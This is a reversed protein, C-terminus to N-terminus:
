NLIHLSAYQTQNFNGEFVIEDILSKLKFFDEITMTIHITGYFSLKMCENLNKSKTDLYDWVKFVQCKKIELEISNFYIRYFGKNSKYYFEKNVM